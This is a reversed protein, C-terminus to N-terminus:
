AFPEEGQLKTRHMMRGSDFAYPLARHMTGTNDWIVLDGVSWRHRCVFQPQTAYDRLRCLLDSSQEPTMGIVYSATSGLVLSKRGSRHNWVLPLVNRGRRQWEQLERYTPEPKVYRQTAEFSHVVNLKDLAEKDSATLEDYAAYTNSFETEGGVPALRRASMISALIAIDSMTGDIHWYFAGRLYEAQSNEGPDMTIKYINNVGEDVITGLTKTFAVQQQDTLNLERFAIVGRDELLERIQGAHTGSLLEAVDAKIECGIKPELPLVSWTNRVMAANVM